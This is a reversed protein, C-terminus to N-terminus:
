LPIGLQLILKEVIKVKQKNKEKIEYFFILKVVTDDIWLRQCIVKSKYVNAKCRFFAFLKILM